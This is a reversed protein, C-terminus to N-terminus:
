SCPTPTRSTPSRSASSPSARAGPHATDRRGPSLARGRPDHTVSRDTSADDAVEDRAHLRRLSAPSRRDSVTEPRDAATARRPRRHRHGVLRDGRVVQSTPGDSATVRDLAEPPRAARAAPRPQAGARASPARIGARPPARAAARRASGGPRGNAPRSRAAEGGHGTRRGLAARRPASPPVRARRRAARRAPRRAQRRRERGERPVEDERRRGHDAAGGGRARAASAPRRDRRLRGALRELGRVDLFAEDISLGEVLPTTDEFVEFVAKSAESYASMRPRFSSRTRASGGRRGAAWRPGSATRRRRTARRSCSAAAWSCPSDASRATTGSSSRPSSPTSTPM